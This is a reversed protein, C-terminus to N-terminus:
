GKVRWSGHRLTRRARRGLARLAVYGSQAPSALLRVSWPDRFYHLDVRPLAWPDDARRATALRVGCAGRYTARVTERVRSDTRGYPYAFTTVATGLCDELRRRADRIQHVLADDPLGPLSLHDLSHAGVEFGAACWSRLGSRDLLPMRPISRPQGPWRNDGGLRGGLAFVTALFGHEVLRPLAEHELNAYGDDFTLVVPRLPLTEEGRWAALLQDLRIGVHGGRALRELQRAFISPTTSIVSSSPDLSHWTLIPVRAPALPAQVKEAKQSRM